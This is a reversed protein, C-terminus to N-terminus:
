LFTKEPRESMKLNPLEKKTMSNYSSKINELYLDRVLYIVQLYRRGTHSQRKVKSIVYMSAFLNVKVFDLKDTKNNTRKADYRFFIM